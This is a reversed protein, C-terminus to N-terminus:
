KKEDEMITYRDLKNNKGDGLVKPNRQTQKKHEVEIGEFIEAELGEAAAKTVPTRILMKIRHTRLM